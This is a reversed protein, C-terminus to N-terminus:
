WPCCNRWFLSKPHALPSRLAPLKLLYGYLLRRRATSPARAEDPEKSALNEPPALASHLANSHCVLPRVTSYSVADIMEPLWGKCSQVLAEHTTAGIAVRMGVPRRHRYVFTWKTLQSLSLASHEIWDRAIVDPWAGAGFCLGKQTCELLGSAADASGAGRKSRGWMM